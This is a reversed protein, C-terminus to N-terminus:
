PKQSERVRDLLRQMRANVYVARGRAEALSRTRLSRVVESRHLNRQLDIPIRRRFYWVVGRKFFHPGGRHTVAM